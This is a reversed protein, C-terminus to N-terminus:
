ATGGRDFLSDRKKRFYDASERSFLDGQVSLEDMAQTYEVKDGINMAKRKQYEKMREESITPKEEKPKHLTTHQQRELPNIYPKPKRPKDLLARKARDRSEEAVSKKYSREYTNVPENQSGLPRKVSNYRQRQGQPLTRSTTPLDAYAAFRMLSEEDSREPAHTFIQRNNMLTRNDPSFSM